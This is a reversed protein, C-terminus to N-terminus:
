FAVYFIKKSCVSRAAFPSSFEVVNRSQFTLNKTKNGYDCGECSKFYPCLMTAFFGMSFSFYRVRHQSRM